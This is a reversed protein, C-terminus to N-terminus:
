FDSFTVKISSREAIKSKHIMEVIKSSSINFPNCEDISSLYVTKVKVSLITKKNEYKSCIQKKM